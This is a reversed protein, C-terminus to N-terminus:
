LVAQQGVIPLLACGHVLFCTCSCSCMAALWGLVCDWLLSSLTPLILGLFCSHSYLALHHSALTQVLSLYYLFLQVQCLLLRAYTFQIFSHVCSGERCICLCLFAPSLPLPEFWLKHEGVVGTSNAWLTAQVMCGWPMVRCSMVYCLMAYGSIACRFM